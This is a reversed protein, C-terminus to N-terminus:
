REVIAAGAFSPFISWRSPEVEFDSEAESRDPRPRQRMCTLWSCCCMCARRLASPSGGEASDADLTSGWVIGLKDYVKVFHQGINRSALAAASNDPVPVEAIAAVLAFVTHDFTFRNSLVPVIGIRQIHAEAESPSAQAGTGIPHELTRVLKVLQARSITGDTRCIYGWTRILQSIQQPNFAWREQSQLIEFNRCM